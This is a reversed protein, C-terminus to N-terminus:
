KGLKSLAYHIFFSKVEQEDAEYDTAVGLKCNGAYNSWIVHFRMYTGGECAAKIAECQQVTFNGLEFFWYERM